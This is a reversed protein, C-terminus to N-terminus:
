KTRSILGDIYTADATSDLINDVDSIVILGKSDWFVKKGLAECSELAVIGLPGVPITTLNNEESLM